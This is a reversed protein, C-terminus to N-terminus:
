RDMRDILGAEFLRRLTQRLDAETPWVPDPERPEVLIDVLEDYDTPGFEELSGLLFYDQHKREPPLRVFDFIPMNGMQKRHQAGRPTISYVDM